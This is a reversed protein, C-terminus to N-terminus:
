EPRRRGLQSPEIVGWSDRERWLNRLDWKRVDVNRIRRKLLEFTDSHTPVQVGERTSPQTTGLDQPAITSPSSSNTTSSLTIARAVEERQIRLWASSGGIVLAFVPDLFRSLLYPQSMELHPRYALKWLLKSSTIDGWASNTSCASDFSRQLISQRLFYRSILQRRHKISTPPGTYQILSSNHHKM